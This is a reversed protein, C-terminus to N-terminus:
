LFSRVAAGVDAFFEFQPALGTLELAQRLTEGTGCLKLPHGTRAMEENAEVLVELGRSDAYPVASADVVCRALGSELLARIRQKLDDAGDRTLPGMPKLVRVAGYDQEAINM